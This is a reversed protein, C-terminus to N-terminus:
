VWREEYDSDDLIELMEDEDEVDVPARLLGAVHEGVEIVDVRGKRELFVGESGLWADIGYTGAVGGLEAELEPVEVADGAEFREEWSGVLGQVAVMFSAYRLEDEMNAGVNM